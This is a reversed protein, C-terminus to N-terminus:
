RVRQSLTCRRFLTCPPYYRHSNSPRYQRRHVISSRIQSLPLFYSPGPTLVSKNKHVQIFKLMLQTKGCGGMGTVVLMRPGDADAVDRADLMAKEIFEWPKKRM